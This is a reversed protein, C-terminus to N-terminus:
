SYPLFLFSEVYVSVQIHLIQISFHLFRISKYIPKRDNTIISPYRVKFLVILPLAEEAM